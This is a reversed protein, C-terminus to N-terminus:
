WSPAGAVRAVIREPEVEFGAVHPDLRAHAVVGDVRPAYEVRDHAAAGAVVDQAAPRDGIDRASAAQTLLVDEVAVAAGIAQDGPSRLM